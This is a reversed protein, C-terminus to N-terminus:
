HRISYHSIFPCGSPVQQLLAVSCGPHALICKHAFVPACEQEGTNNIMAEPLDADVLDGVARALKDVVLQHLQSAAQQQTAETLEAKLKEVTGLNPFVKQVLTDNLQLPASPEHPQSSIV